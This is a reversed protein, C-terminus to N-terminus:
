AKPKAAGPTCPGILVGDVDMVVDVSINDCIRGVTSLM